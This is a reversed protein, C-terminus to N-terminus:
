EHFSIIARRKGATRGMKTMERNFFDPIIM